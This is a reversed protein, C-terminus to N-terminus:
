FRYIVYAIAQGAQHGIVVNSGGNTIALLSQYGIGINYYNSQGSGGVICLQNVLLLTKVVLKIIIVM